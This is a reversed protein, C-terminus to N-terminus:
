LEELLTSVQILSNLFGEIDLKAIWVEHDQRGYMIWIENKHFIFGCPFVVRVPHWYPEYVTGHYFNPGIIPEPSIYKIEFSPATSFLYAGMFYHPLLAGDSHLTKLLISSHFFGLYLGEDLPLAPTGGRLEGWEWILSPYSSAFTECRESGDLLPRFIKHPFLQYALLLQNQYIFPVWNKERRNPNEGEFNSLCENHVAHFGNEDYAVDAIYVRCEGNTMKETSASYIVYLQDGNALLRADEGALHHQHQDPDEIFIFQPTGIPNLDDDLWIPSIQDANRIVRFSMLLRKKWKVISGNFADPFGPIVIKKTELVFDQAIEELDKQAYIFTTLCCLIHPLISRFPRLMSVGILFNM